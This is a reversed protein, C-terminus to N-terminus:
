KVSALREQPLCYSRTDAMVVAEREEATSEIGEEAQLQFVDLMSLIFDDAKEGIKGKFICASIYEKLRQPSPLISSSAMQKIGELDKDLDMSELASSSLRAPSFDLGSFSGMPQVLMNMKRFDIGGFVDENIVPSSNPKTIEGAAAAKQASSLVYAIVAVIEYGYSSMHMTGVYKGKVYFEVSDSPDPVQPRRAEIGTKPEVKINWSQMFYASHTGQIETGDPLTVILPGNGGPRKVDIETRGKLTTVEKLSGSFDELPKKDIETESKDIWKIIDDCVRKIVALDDAVNLRLMWVDKDLQTINRSKEFAVKMIEKLEAKKANIEKEELPSAATKSINPFVRGQPIRQEKIMERWDGNSIVERSSLEYAPRLAGYVRTEDVANWELGIPAGNAVYTFMGTDYAIEGIVPLKNGMTKNTIWGFIIEGTQDDLRVMREENNTGKSSERFSLLVEKLVSLDTLEKPQKIDAISLLESFHAVEAAIYNSLELYTEELPLIYIGEYTPGNFGGRTVMPLERSLLTEENQDAYGALVNAVIVERAAPSFSKTEALMVGLASLFVEASSGGLGKVQEPSLQGLVELPIDVSASKGKEMEEQIRANIVDVTRPFIRLGTRESAATKGLGYVRDAGVSPTKIMKMVEQVDWIDQDIVTAPFVGEVKGTGAAYKEIFRFSELEGSDKIAKYLELGQKIQEPDDKKYVIGSLVLFARFFPALLAHEQHYSRAHTYYKNDEAPLRRMLGSNELIRTAEEEQRQVFQQHKEISLWGENVKELEDESLQHANLLDLATQIIKRNDEGLDKSLLATLIRRFRPVILNLDIIKRTERTLQKVQAMIVDPTIGIPKGQRALGYYLDAMTKGTVKIDVSPRAKSLTPVEGSGSLHGQSIVSRDDNKVKAELANKIVMLEDHKKNFMEKISSYVDINSEYRSLTAVIEKVVTVIDIPDYYDKKEIDDIVAYFGSIKASILSLAAPDGANSKKDRELYVSELLDNIIARLDTLKNKTDERLLLSNVEDGILSVGTDEKENLSSASSIKLGKRIAVAFPKLNSIHLERIRGSIGEVKVEGNRFVSIKVDGGDKEDLGKVIIMYGDSAMNIKNGIPLINIEAKDTSGDIFTFYYYKSPSLDSYKGIADHVRSYAELNVEIRVATIGQKKLEDGLIGPKLSNQARMLEEKIDKKVNKENQLFHELENYIAEFDKSDAIRKNYSSFLSGSSYWNDFKIGSIIDKIADKAEELTLPSAAAIATHDTLGNGTVVATYAGKPTISLGIINSFQEIKIEKGFVMGGSMYRRIVQGTPTYVPESLNYEGEKFSKQYEKFYVAKDWSQKSTLNSLNQSDILKMYSNNPSSDVTLQSSHSSFRAKFWRSLVLSYFVQRLPAYRKARNVEKTLKPIILERILQTSYENLEKLRPDNFSYDITTGRREDKMGRLYDEELMVKLAAKYIYAGHASERVIIEGPVIWPRTITPITINESGFLEGARKYLKDWYEKGEKTQPSTFSSTDRKLQLDAELMIRGVDTNELEPDIIQEPADPRLNVWFKENPLSLGIRFYKMLEDARVKVQSDSLEKEDAKDLLIQFNDTKPEYSFYRLHAPRFRDLTISNSGQGLYGALNLQAVQAFGASQFIFSVSVALSIIRKFM